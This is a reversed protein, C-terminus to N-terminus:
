SPKPPLTPSPQPFFSITRSVIKKVASCINYNNGHCLKVPLGVKVASDFLSIDKTITQYGSACYYNRTHLIANTAANLLHVCTAFNKSYTVTLNSGDIVASNLSVFSPTPRPPTPSPYRSPALTPTLCAGNQCSGPCTYSVSAVAGASSCYGEHLTSVGNQVSCSDILKSTSGQIYTIGYKFYNKGGDSDICYGARPTPTRSPFVARTPTPTPFSQASSRESYSNVYWVVGLIAALSLFVISLFRLNTHVRFLDRSKDGNPM